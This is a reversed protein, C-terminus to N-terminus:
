NKNHSESPITFTVTTGKGPFSEMKIKGKNIEVFEKSLILGLGTGSENFTGQTQHKEDIKFVKMLQDKNMGVGDDKVQIEIVGDPYKYGKININGGVNTFKVSNGVLNRLATSYLDADAFATLNSEMNVNITIDKGHASIRAAEVVNETLINLDIKAPKYETRGMQNRSWQLLNEVLAFLKGSSQYIQKSFKKIEEKDDNESHYVLMESFGLLSNFPSRLDHSIISFFKDKESSQKELKEVQRRLNNIVKNKVISKRVVLIMVAMVALFLVFVVVSYYQM